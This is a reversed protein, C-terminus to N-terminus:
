KWGPFETDLYAVFDDVDEVPARWGGDLSVSYTGRLNRYVYAQVVPFPTNDCNKPSDLFATGHYLDSETLKFGLSQLKQVTLMLAM